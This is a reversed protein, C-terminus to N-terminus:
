ASHAFAQDAFGDAWDETMAVASLFAARLAGLYEHVSHRSEANDPYSVTAITQDANRTIWM